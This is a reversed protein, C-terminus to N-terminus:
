NKETRILGLFNEIKEMLSRNEEAQGDAELYYVRTFENDETSVTVVDDATYKRMQNAAAIEASNRGAQEGLAKNGALTLHSAMLSNEKVLTRTKKNIEFTGAMRFTFIILLLGAILMLVVTSVASANMKKMGSLKKYTDTDEILTMRYENEVKRKKADSHWPSRIEEPSVALQGDTIYRYKAM